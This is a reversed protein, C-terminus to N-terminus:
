VAAGIEYIHHRRTRVVERAGRMGAVQEWHEPWLLVVIVHRPSEGLSRELNAVMRGMVEPGFPNFMAVVLNGNPFEYEAADGHIVVIDKCRQRGSRYEAINREAQAHLVNSFELGRVARFPYEAALFLMRGKGSGVDLFTYAGFERIPSEELATKLNEARVPVYMAGDRLEGVVEAANPRRVNGATQVHRTWDFWWSELEAVKLRIAALSWGRGWFGVAM